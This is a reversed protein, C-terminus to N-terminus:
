TKGEHAVGCYRAIFEALIAIGDIYEDVPVREELSHCIRIDGPAFYVAPIGRSVLFSAESWFPAGEVRGRDPRVANACRVLEAVAPLMSEAASILTTAFPSKATMPVAPASAIATTMAPVSVIVVPNVIVSSAEPATTPAM